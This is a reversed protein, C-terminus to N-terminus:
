QAYETVQQAADLLWQPWVGIALTFVAASFIATASLVGVRGAAPSGAVPRLWVSVMVRLYVYAGIVASVMAIIAIAYSREEVAASSAWKASFGATL